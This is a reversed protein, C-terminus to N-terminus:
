SISRMRESGTVAPLVRYRGCSDQGANKREADGRLVAQEALERGDIEVLQGFVIEFRIALSNAREGGVIDEGGRAAMEIGRVRLDNEDAVARLDALLGRKKPGTM